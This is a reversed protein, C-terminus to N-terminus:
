FTYLHNTTKKVSGQKNCQIGKQTGWQYKSNTQPRSPLTQEQRRHRQLHRNWRAELQNHNRYNSLYLSPTIKRYSQQSLCIERVQVPEVSIQCFSQEAPIGCSKCRCCWAKNESSWMTAERGEMCLWRSMHRVVTMYIEKAESPSETVWEKIKSELALVKHGLSDLDATQHSQIAWGTWNCKCWSGSNTITKEM